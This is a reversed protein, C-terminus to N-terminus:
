YFTDLVKETLEEDQGIGNIKTKGKSMTSGLNSSSSGRKRYCFNEEGDGEVTCM